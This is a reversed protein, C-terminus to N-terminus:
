LDVTQIQMKERSLRSLPLIDDILQAMRQAGTRVRNLYEIGAADLRTGYDELVIQSFGDISRLPARLDHSVSYSFAELEKNAAQLRATRLSVLEELHEKHRRIEEQNLAIIVSLM